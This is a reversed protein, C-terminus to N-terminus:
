EDTNGILNKLIAVSTTAIPTHLDLATNSYYYTGDEGLIDVEQITYNQAHKIFVIPKNQYTIVSTKSIKYLNMPVAIQANARIGPAISIEKAIEFRVTQTQTLPDVIFARQLIKADFVKGNFRIHATQGIHLYQAYSAEMASELWLVGEKHLIFLAESSSSSTNLFTVTGDDLANIKLVPAVQLTEFLTHVTMENAGYNKLLAVSANQKAVLQKYNTESEICAKQPIIGDKCLMKNRENKQRTNELDLFDNIASQQAELWAMASVEAILQGKQVKDYLSVFFQKTHVEFPLTVTQILSPPTIVQASFEGLPLMTSLTPKESKINWTKEQETTLTITQSYLIQCAAIILLRKKM